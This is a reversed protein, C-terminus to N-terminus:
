FLNKPVSFAKKAVSDAKLEDEDPLIEPFAEKVLKYTIFPYPMKKDKISAILEADKPDLQELLEIFLQERRLQKLNPVQGEIFIYLRRAEKYFIPELDQLDNPKYPVKGEPLQWVINPDFCYQLVIKLPMSTHARLLEIRKNKSKEKSIVSLIEAVGLKM